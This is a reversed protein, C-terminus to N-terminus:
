KRCRPPSPASVRTPPMSSRAADARESICVLIREQVGWVQDIGHTKLYSELQRDVVEAAVLLAMERLRMLKQKETSLVESSVAM